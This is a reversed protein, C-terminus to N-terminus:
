SFKKVIFEYAENIRKLKEEGNEQTTSDSNQLKDPHNEKVLKRYQAKIETQSPNGTLGLVRLFKNEETTPENILDPLGDFSFKIYKNKFNEYKLDEIKPIEIRIM